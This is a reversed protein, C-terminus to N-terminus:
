FAIRAADLLYAIPASLVIGVLAGVFLWWYSEHARGGATRLADLGTDIRDFGQHASARVHALWSAPLAVLNDCKCYLCQM